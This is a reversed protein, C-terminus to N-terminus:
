RSQNEPPCTVLGSQTYDLTFEDRILPLMPVPLATLLHHGFHALVFLPLLGSFLSRIDFKKATTDKGFHNQPKKPLDPGNTVNGIGM